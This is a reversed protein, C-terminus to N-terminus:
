PASPRSHAHARSGRSRPSAGRETFSARLIADVMTHVVAQAQAEKPTLQFTQIYDILEQLKQDTLPGGGKTGFLGTLKRNFDRWLEDLDPPGDRGGTALHVDASAPRGLAVRVLGRCLAGAAHALERASGIPRASVPISDRITM